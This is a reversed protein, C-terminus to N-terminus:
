ETPTAVNEAEALAESRRCAAIMARRLADRLGAQELVAIAAETTGGPSTVRRRLESPEAQSELAMRAAGLATQLTLLRAMDSELGLAEAEAQMAEMMLFFYAPGSGSVATIADLLTETEVWCVIGVARLVSEALDRQSATVAATAFLGAAGSQVLAPTNPMARVLAAGGGLWADIDAARIGAAVSITLPKEAQVITTLGKAVARMAQPKVALVVVDAGTAATLNDEYAAVGFHAQVAARPEADPDAVRIHAPDYGDAILGGILARAM